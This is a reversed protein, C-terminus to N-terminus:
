ENANEDDGNDKESLGSLAENVELELMFCNRRKQPMVIRGGHIVSQNSQIPGMASSGSFSAYKRLSRGSFALPSMKPVELNEM